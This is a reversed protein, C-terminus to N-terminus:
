PMSSCPGPMGQWILSGPNNLGHAKRRLDIGGWSRFPIREKQSWHLAECIWRNCNKIEGGRLFPLTWVCLRQVIGPLPVCLSTWTHRSHKAAAQLWEPHTRRPLSPLSHHEGLSSLDGTLTFSFGFSGGGVVPSCTDHRPREQRVVSEAFPCWANRPGRGAARCRTQDRWGSLWRHACLTCVAAVVFWFCIWAAISAACWDPSNRLFRTGALFWSLPPWASPTRTGKIGSVWRGMFQPSRPTEEKGSVRTSGM